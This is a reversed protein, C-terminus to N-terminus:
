KLIKLAGTSENHKWDPFCVLYFDCEDCCCELGDHQGNGLCDKGNFGPTLLIGTCDDIYRVM